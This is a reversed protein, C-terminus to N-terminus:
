MTEYYNYAPNTTLLMTWILVLHYLQLCIIHNGKDTQKALTM